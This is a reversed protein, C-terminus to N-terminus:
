RLEISLHLLGAIVRNNEKLLFLQYECHTLFPNKQPNLQNRVDIRLPPVWLEDNKYHDYPFQVFANIDKKTFVNQIEMM